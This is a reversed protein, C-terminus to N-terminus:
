CDYDTGSGKGQPAGGANLVWWVDNVSPTWFERNWEKPM